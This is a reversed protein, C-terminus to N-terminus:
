RPESVSWKTTVEQCTFSTSRPPKFIYFFHFVVIVDSKNQNTRIQESSIDSTLHRDKSIQKARYTLHTWFTSSSGHILDARDLLHIRVMQTATHLCLISTIYFSLQLLSHHDSSMSPVYISCLHFGHEWSGQIWVNQLCQYLGAWLPWPRTAACMNLRIKLRHSDLRYRIYYICIYVYMDLMDIIYRCYSRITRDSGVEANGMMEWGERRKRRKEPIDKLDTGGMDPPPM